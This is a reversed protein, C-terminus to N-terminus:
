SRAARWDTSTAAARTSTTRLFCSRRAGGSWADYFSRGSSSRGSAFTGATSSVRNLNLSLASSTM